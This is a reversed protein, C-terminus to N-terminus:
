INLQTKKNKIRGVEFFTMGKDTEIERQIEKNKKLNKM